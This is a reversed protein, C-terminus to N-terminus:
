KNLLYIEWFEEGNNVIGRKIADNELSLSKEFIDWRMKIIDNHLQLFDKVKDNWRNLYGIWKENNSLDMSNLDINVREITGDQLLNVFKNLMVESIENTLVDKYKFWVSNMESFWQFYILYRDQFIQVMDRLENIDKTYRNEILIPQLPVNTIVKKDKSFNLPVPNINRKGTLIQNMLSDPNKYGISNLYNVWYESNFGMGGIKFITEWSILYQDEDNGNNSIIIDDCYNLENILDNKLEDNKIILIGEKIFKGRKLFKYLKSNVDCINSIQHLQSKDIVPNFNVMSIYSSKSGLNLGTENNIPLVMKINNTEIPNPIIKIIKSEILHSKSSNSYTKIKYALQNGGKVLVSVSKLPNVSASILSILQTDNLQLYSVDGELITM